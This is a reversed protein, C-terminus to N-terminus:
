KENYEEEVFNECAPQEDTFEDIHNWCKYRLKCDGCCRGAKKIEIVGIVLIIIAIGVLGLMLFIM